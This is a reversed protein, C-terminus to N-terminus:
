CSRELKKGGTAEMRGEMKRPEASPNEVPAIPNECPPGSLVAQRNVNVWM